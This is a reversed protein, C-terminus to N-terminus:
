DVLNHEIAFKILRPMDPIDLKKRIRNSYTYVTAPTVSLLLAIDPNSKGEVVLQLVERERASLVLLPNETLDQATTTAQHITSGAQEMHTAIKDLIRQINELHNTIIPSPGTSLMNQVIELNSQALAIDQRAAQYLDITAGNSKQQSKILWTTMTRLQESQRGVATLLRDKEQQHRIRREIEAQLKQNAEALEATRLRVKDELTDNATQLAQQL